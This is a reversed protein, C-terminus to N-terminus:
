EIRLLARSLVEVTSSELTVFYSRYILQVINYCGGRARIVINDAKPWEARPSGLPDGM